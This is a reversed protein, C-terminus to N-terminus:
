VRLNSAKTTKHGAAPRYFITIDILSGRMCLMVASGAFIPSQLKM